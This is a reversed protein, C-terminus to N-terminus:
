RYAALFNINIMIRILQSDSVEQLLKVQSIPVQETSNFWHFTTSSLCVSSNENEFFIDDKSMIYQVSSCLILPNESFILFISQNYILTM